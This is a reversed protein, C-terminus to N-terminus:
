RNLGFFYSRVSFFVAGATVGVPKDEPLVWVKVSFSELGRNSVKWPQWEGFGLIFVLEGLM